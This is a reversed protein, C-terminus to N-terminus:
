RFVNLRHVKWGELMWYNQSVLLGVMQDGSGRVERGEFKRVRLGGSEKVEQGKSSGVRQVRSGRFEQGESKRVRQGGVWKGGSGLVEWWRVELGRVEWCNM